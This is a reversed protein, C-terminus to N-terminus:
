KKGKKHKAPPAGKPVPAVPGKDKPVIQEFEPCLCKECVSIADEMVEGCKKCKKM